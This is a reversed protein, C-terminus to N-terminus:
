PANTVVPLFRCHRSTCYEFLIADIEVGYGDGGSIQVALTHEGGAVDEIQITASFVFVNWGHGFNGTDQAAFEGIESGDLMVSVTETSGSNDNSYRVIVTGNRGALSHFAWSRSEGAHLWVTREGWANSRMMIAGDGSGGEGQFLLPMPAISVLRSLGRQINPNRAVLKHILGSRSNELHLLMPGQDIAFLARQMWPGNQRLTLAPLESGDIESIEDHFADPLGFRPHWHGRDWAVRLARIARERLDDGLGAASLMAYYTVTGDEEPAPNLAIPPAGYAHYANSPGEAASLGWADPGYTTYGAPNEEAYDIARWLAMRSNKFWDIPGCSSRWLRTDLFSHLFQYTFLAGPYTRILNEEDPVYHLACYLDPSLAHTESGVALLIAMLAEDTYYDLTAPDGSVGSYSGLGDEDPIEFPPGERDENPKWGLYFQQSQSELMFPWDVRDYISQARDRIEIEVEDAPNDFYSQAALVGMLALSTDITSLEVTNLSEDTDPTEEFDFNLKRRGDVGLFHYFWGRYGIRGVPEPGFADDSDLTRLVNIVREAAEARTIWGREAAVIHASLAFGIGGITLLDGFTSRDQPIDLSEAKRSSWDLFYQYVRRELLDLLGEDTTPKGEDRDLTFWIHGVDLTGLVPNDVGDGIHRREIIVALEKARHVDLDPYGPPVRYSTRFPWCYTQPAPRKGILFRTFRVGGLTDKLEVRLKLEEPDDYGLQFCLEKLIRPGQPENLLGDIRDLDLVHEQFSITEVTSGDFTAQTEILGFLSLFLGTFADEATGFDWGLRLGCSQADGPCDLIPDIYESNISGMNGSFDNFGSDFETVIDTYDELTVVNADTFAMNAMGSTAPVCLTGAIVMAGVLDILLARVLWRTM